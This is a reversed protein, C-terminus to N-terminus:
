QGGVPVVCRFGTSYWADNPVYNIRASTSLFEVNYGHSGGRLVYRDGSTPGTPNQEASVSYYGADYIDRVWEWANGAMDLAGYPSAGDPYSGVVVSDLVCESYNALACTPEANGWPYLRQDTGRAAKEWQAETPLSAGAWACYSVADDLSIHVVPHDDRGDLNTNPGYPHQWDVGTTEEWGTDTFLWSTGKIEVSTQYGTANIFARFQANTVEYQDIWFADLYVSHVPAEDENGSNSGMMFSGDPVYVMAMGDMDRLRTSGIGLEPTPSPSPSPTVTPTNTTRIRPTDTIAKTPLVYADQTMQAFETARPGATASIMSWLWIAGVVVAIGFFALVFLLIWIPFKKRKQVPPSVPQPMRQYTGPSPQQTAPPPTWQASPQSSPHMRQVAPQPTPTRQM